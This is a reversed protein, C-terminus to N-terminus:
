GQKGSSAGYQADSVNEGGEAEARIVESNCEWDKKAAWSMSVPKLWTLEVKECHEQGLAMPSYDESGCRHVRFKYAKVEHKM